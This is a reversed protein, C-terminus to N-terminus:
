KKTCELVNLAYVKIAIQGIPCIGEYIFIGSNYPEIIANNNRLKAM